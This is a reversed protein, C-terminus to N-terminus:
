ITFVIKDGSLFEDGIVNKRAIWIGSTHVSWTSEVMRPVCVKRKDM